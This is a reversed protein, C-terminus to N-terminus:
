GRVLASPVVTMPFPVAAEFAEDGRVDAVEVYTGTRDLQLARLRPTLPDVVWYSPTGAREYRERKLRLDFTRTSPSLVEVALVPSGPLDAPTLDARRAILVDPQLETDGSMVVAFPAIITELDPPTAARLAVALGLVSRQHSLSPASTVLLWGDLLEYRYGDDDPLEALEDRTWGPSRLSGDVFEYVRGRGSM